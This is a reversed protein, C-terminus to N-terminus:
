QQKPQQQQQQQQMAKQFQRMDPPEISDGADVKSKMVIGGADRNESGTNAFYYVSDRSITAAGPVDFPELAIAMPSVTKVVSHGEDLELRLLRQPSIGSQLVFLRGFGYEIGSIGALNLKDDGMLMGSQQEEPYAIFVGMVADSVFIRRNDPTVAIDTLQVLDPSSVFAELTRSEPTKRYVIPNIRDIVYVTGDMTLALSGLEHDPMNAPLTYSGIPELSQLDFEFLAGHSKRAPSTGVYRSTSSSSVWLRNREQDVALGNISWMGNEPGAKLLLETTGDDAVALIRGDSVTGVLFRERVPDWTIAEFDAPDGPLEFIVEGDGAPQGAEVLMGHMYEYAESNRISETDPSANFDYSLGQKQMQLMVDYANSRRGLLACARVMNYMYDPVYPRMRHLKNNANYFSLYKGNEYAQRSKEELAAAEAKRLEAPTAKEQAPEQAQLPLVLLMSILAVLVSYNTIRPM